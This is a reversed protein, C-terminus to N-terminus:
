TNCQKRRNNRHMRDKMLKNIAEHLTLRCDPWKKQISTEGDNFSCEGCVNGNSFQGYYIINLSPSTFKGKILRLM